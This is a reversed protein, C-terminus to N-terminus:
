ARAAASIAEALAADAIEELNAGPSRALPRLRADFRIQAADAIRVLEEKAADQPLARAAAALFTERPLAREPWEDRPKLAIATEIMEVPAPDTATEARGVKGVVSEVEPLSRLIADRVGLDRGAEELAIGPATVPMELIAGEDLAPMFESGLRPSLVAGAALVGWWSALVWGPRVLFFCRVRGYVGGWRGFM